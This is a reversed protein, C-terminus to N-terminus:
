VKIDSEESEARQRKAKSEPQKSGLDNLMIIFTDDTEAPGMGEQNSGESIIRNMKPAEAAPTNIASKTAQEQNPQESLM